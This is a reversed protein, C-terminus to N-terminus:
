FIRTISDLWIFFFWLFYFCLNIIYYKQNSNKKKFFQPGPRPKWNRELKTNRKNSSCDRLIIGVVKAAFFSYLDKIDWMKFLFRCLQFSIFPCVSPCTAMASLPNTNNNSCKTNNNSFNVDILHLRFLSNFGSCIM